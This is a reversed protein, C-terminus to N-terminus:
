SATKRDAFILRASRSGHGSRGNGIKGVFAPM